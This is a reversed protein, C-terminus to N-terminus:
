NDREVSADLCGPCRNSFILSSRIGYSNSVMAGVIEPLLQLYSYIKINLQIIRQTSESLAMASAGSLTWNSVQRSVYSLHIQKYDQNWPLFISNIKTFYAYM